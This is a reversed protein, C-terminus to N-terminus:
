FDCVFLFSDRRTFLGGPALEFIEAFRHAQERGDALHGSFTGDVAVAGDSLLVRALTHTGDAITRKERYYSEIADRGALPPGGPRHYVANEDFLEAFGAFDGEDIRRYM